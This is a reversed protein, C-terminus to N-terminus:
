NPTVNCILQYFDLILTNYVAAALTVENTIPLIVPATTQIHISSNDWYKILFFM